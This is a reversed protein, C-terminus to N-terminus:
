HLFIIFSSMLSICPSGTSVHTFCHQVVVGGLIWVSSGVVAGVVEVVVLGLDVVGCGVVVVLWLECIVLVVVVVSM